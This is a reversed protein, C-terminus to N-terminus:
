CGSGLGLGLGLHRGVVGIQPAVDLTGGDRAVEALADLLLLEVGEANVALIRAARVEINAKACKNALSAGFNM